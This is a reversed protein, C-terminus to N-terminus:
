EEREKDDTPVRHLRLAVRHGARWVPLGLALMLSGTVGVTV